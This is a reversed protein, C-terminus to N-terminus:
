KHNYISLIRQSQLIWCVNFNWKTQLWFPGHSRRYAAMPRTNDDPTLYRVHTYLGVAWRAASLSCTEEWNGKEEVMLLIQLEQQLQMQQFRHWKDLPPFQILMLVDYLSCLTSESRSFVTTLDM